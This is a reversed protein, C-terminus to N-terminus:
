EDSLNDKFKVYDERKIEFLENYLDEKEKLVTKLDNIEKNLEILKPEIDNNLMFDMAKYNLYLENNRNKLEKEFTEQNVMYISYDFGLYDTLKFELIIHYPKDDLNVAIAGYHKDNNGYVGNSETDLFNNLLFHIVYVDDLEYYNSYDDKLFDTFRDQYVTYDSIRHKFKENELFDDFSDDIQLIEWLPLDDRKMENFSVKDKFVDSKIAILHNSHLVYLKDKLDDDDDVGTFDDITVNAIGDDDKPVALSIVIPINTRILPTNNLYNLIIENMGITLSGYKDELHKVLEKKINSDMRFSLTEKSNSLKREKYFLDNKDNMLMLVM